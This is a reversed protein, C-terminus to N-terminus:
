KSKSCYRTLLLTHCSRPENTGQSTGYQDGYYFLKKYASNSDYESSSWYSAFGGSFGGIITQNNYLLNLEDISPLYWDSFGYLVLDYCLKAAYNGAGQISVILNTNANGTGISTNNANTLISSGNFWQIGSSQDAAAAILGHVEGAVYGAEGLQYIYAVIGGGYVDGISLTSTIFKVEKGTIHFREHDTAYSRMYYTTLPELSTIISTFSYLGSGDNTKTSLAITPNPAISWCVGRATVPFGGDSSVMGGVFVGDFTIGSVPANTIVPYTPRDNTFSRIARVKYSSNKSGASSFGMGIGSEIFQM